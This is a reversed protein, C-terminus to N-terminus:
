YMYLAPTYVTDKTIITIVDAKQRGLSNVMAGGWVPSQGHVHAGRLITDFRLCSLTELSSLRTSSAWWRGTGM